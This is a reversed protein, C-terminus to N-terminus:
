DLKKRSIEKRLAEQTPIYVNNLHERNAELFNYIHFASLNMHSEPVFTLFIRIMEKVLGFKFVNLSIARKQAKMTALFITAGLRELERATHLHNRRAKEAYNGFAARLDTTNKIHVELIVPRNEWDDLYTPNKAIHYAAAIAFIFKELLKVQIDPVKLNGKLCGDKFMGSNMIEIAEQRIDDVMISSVLRGPLWVTKDITIDSHPKAHPDKLFSLLNDFREKPNM